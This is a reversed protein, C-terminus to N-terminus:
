REHKRLAREVARKGEEALQHAKKRSKSETYIRIKSETGSRRILIWGDSTYMKVGDIELTDTPKLEKLLQQSAEAYVTDLLGMPVEISLRMMHYSPLREILKSLKECSRYLESAILAAAYTGDPWPGWKPDIIKWPESALAVNKGEKIPEHIRGLPVTLVKCGHEEAVEYVATGTDVSLVVLGRRDRLLIDAILATVKDHPIFEGSEDVVALRDGDTDHGFGALCGSARVVAGLTTLNEETPEPQRWPRSIEPDCNSSLVKAGLLKLARCTVQGSVGSGSDVAVKVESANEILSTLAEIYSQSTYGASGIRGIRSAVPLKKKMILREVDREQARTFQAGDRDFCKVGTHWVPNHSGTVIAGISCGLTRTAWATVPYSTEGIDVVDVGGEMVGAILAHYIPRSVPRNDRSVVAKGRGAFHGLARGLAVASELSMAEGYAGRVGSTGFKM